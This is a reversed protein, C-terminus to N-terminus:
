LFAFGLAQGLVDPWEGDLAGDKHWRDNAVVLITRVPNQHPDTNIDPMAPNVDVIQSDPQVCPDPASLGLNAVQHHHHGLGMKLAQLGKGAGLDEFPLLGNADGLLAL